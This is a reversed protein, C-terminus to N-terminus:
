SSSLSAAEAKRQQATTIARYYTHLECILDIEHEVDSLRVNQINRMTAWWTWELADVMTTATTAAQICYADPFAAKAREILEASSTPEFM